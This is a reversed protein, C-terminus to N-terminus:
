YLAINNNNDFILQLTINRENKFNNFLNNNGVMANNKYM